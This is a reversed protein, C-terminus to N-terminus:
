SGENIQWLKEINHGHQVCLGLNNSLTSVTLQTLDHM